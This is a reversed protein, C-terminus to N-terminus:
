FRSFFSECYEAESARGLAELRRKENKFFEEGIDSQYALAEAFIRWESEVIVSRLRDELFERVRKTRIEKLVDVIDKMTESSLREVLLDMSSEGAEILSHFADEDGNNLFRDAYDELNGRIM